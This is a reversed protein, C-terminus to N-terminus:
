FPHLFPYLLLPYLTSIHLLYLPSHCLLLDIIPSTRRPSGHHPNTPHLPYPAPFHHGSHRSEGLVVISSVRPNPRTARLLTQFKELAPIWHHQAYRRRWHALAERPSLCHFPKITTPLKWSADTRYIATFSRAVLVQFSPFLHFPCPSGASQFPSLQFQDMLTLSCFVLFFPPIETPSLRFGSSRLSGPFIGSAAPLRPFPSKRAGAGSNRRQDARARPPESQFYQYRGEYRAAKVLLQARKEHERRLSRRRCPGRRQHTMTPLSFM